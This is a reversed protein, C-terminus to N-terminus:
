VCKVVHPDSLEKEVGLLIASRVAAAFEDIFAKGAQPGFRIQGRGARTVVLQYLAERPPRPPKPMARGWPNVPKFDPIGAPQGSGRGVIISPEAM